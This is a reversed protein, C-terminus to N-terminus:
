IRIGIMLIDDVQENIGKWDILRKHLKEKLEPLSCHSNELILKEINKYKFKKGNEGGFQDAYGDTFLIILDGKQLEVSNLTFDRTEGHHIGIPFKDPRILQNVQNRILWIANNAASAQLKMQQISILSVDMGDRNNQSSFGEIVMNRLNNLISDPRTINRHNIIEKLYSIGMLSMFAGPVGHGTCDACVVIFDSNTKQAWYFDGSVIDKPLYLIFHDQTNDAFIKDSSLLSQQINKAYNISDTIEKNKESIVKNRVDLEAAIKKSQKYSRYIFFSAIIVLLLAIFSFVIVLNKRSSESETLKLSNEKQLIEADKKDSEYKAQLEQYDTNVDNQRISDFAEIHRKYSSISKQYDGNSEYALALSNLSNLYNEGAKFKFATDRAMEGFKVAEKTKKLHRYLNCRNNNISATGRNDKLEIVLDYAKNLYELAKQYDKKNKYVLAINNYTLSILKKDNIKLRIELSKNHYLLASDLEKSNKYITGLASFNEALDYIDGCKKCYYNSKHLYNIASKYNKQRVNLKGLRNNARALAADSRCNEGEALSQLYWKAAEDISNKTEHFQGLKYSIYPTNFCDSAIKTTVIKILSDKTKDSAHKKHICKFYLEIKVSDNKAKSLKDNLTDLFNQSRTFGSIFFLLIFIRLRFM